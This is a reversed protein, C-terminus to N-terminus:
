TSQNEKDLWISQGDLGWVITQKDAKRLVPREKCRADDPIELARFVSAELCIAIPTNM